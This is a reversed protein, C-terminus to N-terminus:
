QKNILRDLVVTYSNKKISITKKKNLRATIFVPFMESATFGVYLVGKNDFNFNKIFHFFFHFLICPTRNVFDLM